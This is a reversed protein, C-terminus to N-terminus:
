SISLLAKKKKEGNGSPPSPMSSLFVPDPFSEGGVRQHPIQSSVKQILMGLTKFNRQPFGM